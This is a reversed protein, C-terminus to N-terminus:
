WGSQYITIFKQYKSFYYDEINDWNRKKTRHKYNVITKFLMVIAITITVCSCVLIILNLVSLTVKNNNLSMITKRVTYIMGSSSIFLLMLQFIISSVINIAISKINENFVQM